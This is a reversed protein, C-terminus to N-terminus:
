FLSADLLFQLLICVLTFIIPESLKETKMVLFNDVMKTNKSLGSFCYWGFLGGLTNMILDNVESWRYLNFLQSVELFLSFSFGFLFTKKVDRYGQWFLPLLFGLPMFFIINLIDDKIIGHILSIDPHFLGAGIKQQRELESLPPFGVLNLSIAIYICWFIICILYKLLSIPEKRKKWFAYILIMSTAILLSKKFLTTTLLKRVANMLSQLM